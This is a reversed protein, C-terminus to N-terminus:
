KKKCLYFSIIAQQSTYKSRVESSCNIQAFFSYIWHEMNRFDTSRNPCKFSDEFYTLNDTYYRGIKLGSSQKTSLYDILSDSVSHLEQNLPCKNITQVTWIHKSISNKLSVLVESAVRTWWQTSHCEAMRDFIDLWSRELTGFQSLDFQPKRTVKLGYKVLLLPIFTFLQYVFYSPYSKPQVTFFFLITFTWVFVCSTFWSIASRIFSFHTGM